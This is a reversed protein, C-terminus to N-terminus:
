LKGQAKYGEIAKPLSTKLGYKPEWGLERKATTIDPCRQTPDDTVAPLFSIESTSGTMEKIQEAFGKITHEDPNGLNCPADYKSNM